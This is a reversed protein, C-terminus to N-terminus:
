PRRRNLYATKKNTNSAESGGRLIVANHSKLCLCAADITVNPRSEYIMGIVGIPVRVKRILLGNPRELESIIEGVPGPLEIITEVNKAIQEIRERDLKLRDIFADDKGNERAQQLDIENVAIIEKAQKNLSESLVKLAANIDKTQVRGLEKAAQRANQGISSLLDETM